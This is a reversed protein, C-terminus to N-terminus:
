HSHCHQKVTEEGSLNSKELLYLCIHLKGPCRDIQDRFEDCVAQRLLASLNGSSFDPSQFADDVM